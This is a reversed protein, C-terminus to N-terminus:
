LLDLGDFAKQCGFGELYSFGEFFLRLQKYEKIEKNCFFRWVFTTLRDNHIEPYKRPLL